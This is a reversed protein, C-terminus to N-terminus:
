REMMIVAAAAGHEIDYIMVEVRQRGISDIAVLDITVLDIAVHFALVASAGCQGGRSQPRRNNGGSGPDRRQAGSKRGAGGIM